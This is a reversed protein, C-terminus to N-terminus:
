AAVWFQLAKTKESMLLHNCIEDSDKRKTEWLKLQDCINSLLWYPIWFFPYIPPVTTQVTLKYTRRIGAHTDKPHKPKKGCTVPLLGHLNIPSGMPTLTFPQRDLYTPEKTLLTVQMKGLTVRSWPELGGHGQLPNCLCIWCQNWIFQRFQYFAILSWRCNLAVGLIVQRRQGCKYQGDRCDTEHLNGQGETEDM